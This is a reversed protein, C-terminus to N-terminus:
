VEIVEGMRGKNGLIKMLFTYVVISILIANISAIGWSVFYGVVCGSVWAIFAIINWACYKTDVGYEYKM